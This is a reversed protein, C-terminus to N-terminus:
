GRGSPGTAARIALHLLKHHEATAGHGAAAACATCFGEPPTVSHSTATGRCPHKSINFVTPFHFATCVFFIAAFTIGKRRCPSIQLSFISNTIFEINIANVWEERLEHAREFIERDDRILRFM